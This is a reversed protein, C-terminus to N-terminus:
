RHLAELMAPTDSTRSTASLEILKLLFSFPRHHGQSSGGWPLEPAQHVEVDDSFFQQILKMDHAAFADYVGEFGLARVDAPDITDRYYLGFDWDSQPRARGTARSGGTM